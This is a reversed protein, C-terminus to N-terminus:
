GHNPTLPLFIFVRSVCHSCALSLVVQRVMTSCLCTQPSRVIVGYTSESCGERQQKLLGWEETFAKWYIKSPGNVCLKGLISYFLKLERYLAWIEYVTFVKQIFCLASQVGPGSM